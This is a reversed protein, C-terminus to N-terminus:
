RNGYRAPIGTGIETSVYSVRLHKQEILKKNEPKLNVM